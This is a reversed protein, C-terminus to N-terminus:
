GSSCFLLIYFTSVNSTMFFISKLENLSINEVKNLDNQDIFIKWAKLLPKTKAKEITRELSFKYLKEAEPDLLKFASTDTKFM